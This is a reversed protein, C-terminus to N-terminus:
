TPRSMQLDSPVSFNAIVLENSPQLTRGSVWNTPIHRCMSVVCIKYTHPKSGLIPASPSLGSNSMLGGKSAGSM